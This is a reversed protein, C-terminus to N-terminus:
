DDLSPLARYHYGYAESFGLGRYLNIASHNQAEVQLYGLRAGRQEAEALLRICLWRALGRGRASKATFVDYLGVMEDETASLACAIVQGDASRLVARRLPVPCLTLRQAHALQGSITTGRLDGVIHAFAEESVDELQLADPVAQMSLNTLTDCAMVKTDGFRQFGRQGLWEDLGSPRSFPTIRVIMRLGAQRYLASCVALREGVPLTGESVANICRARQAKGPSFRVLWGDVWRQQPPASANLGADEIRSLLSPAWRDTTM